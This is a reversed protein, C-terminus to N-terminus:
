GSLGYSGRWRRLMEAEVKEWYPETADKLHGRPGGNWRKAVGENTYDGTHECYHQSYLRFIVVSHVLSTRDEETYSTGAIRNVDEVMVEHIQMPGKALGGDGVAYCDGSSEVEIVAGVLPHQGGVFQVAAVLSAPFIM